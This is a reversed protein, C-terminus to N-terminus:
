WTHVPVFHPCARAFLHCRGAKTLNQTTCIHVNEDSAINASTVTLKFANIPMCQLEILDSYAHMISCYNDQLTSNVLIM